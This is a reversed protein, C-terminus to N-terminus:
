DRAGAKEERRKSGHNKGTRVTEMNIHIYVALSLVPGGL